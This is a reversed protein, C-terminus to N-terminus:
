KAVGEADLRYMTKTLQDAYVGEAFLVSKLDPTVVFIDYLDTVVNYKVVVQMIRVRTQGAFHLRAKFILAGPDSSLAGGHHLEHAGVVGLGMVGIQRRITNAILAADLTQGM